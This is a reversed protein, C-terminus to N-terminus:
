DLHSYSFRRIKDFFEESFEAFIVLCQHGVGPMLNVYVTSFQHPVTHANVFMSSVTAKNFYKIKKIVMERMHSSTNSTYDHESKLCDSYQSHCM